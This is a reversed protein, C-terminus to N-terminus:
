KTIWYWFILPSRLIQITIKTAKPKHKELYKDQSAFYMKKRKYNSSNSRGLLHVVKASPMFRIKYKNDILKKCLDTDEYYMFFEKSFGGVRNFAKASVFMSAATAFEVDREQLPLYDANVQGFLGKTFPLIKVVLKVPKEAVIRWGNPLYAIQAPQVRGAKNTILPTAAAYKKHTQLFKVVAELNNKKPIVTDTNLLWLIEGKAVAAGANNGGGFGVNKDLKVVKVRPYIKKLTTTDFKNSANDVVIVEYSFGKINKVVTHLSAETLTQTNYNVYIISVQPKKM